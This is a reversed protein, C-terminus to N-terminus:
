STDPPELAEARLKLARIDFAREGVIRSMVGRQSRSLIEHLLFVSPGEPGHHKANTITFRGCASKIHYEDGPLWQIPM